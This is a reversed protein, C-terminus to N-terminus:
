SVLTIDKYFKAWKHLYRFCFESYKKMLVMHKFGQKMLTVNMKLVDELFGKCSLNVDCFRVLQSTYVGYSQKTPINGHLNPFNVVKFDFDDRKDYCGYTFKNRRISIALDLFTCRYQSLNTNNLVMEKPYIKDKHLLFCGKDNFAICDDQYRFTNSLYKATQIDGKHILMKLYKHEYFHLYINALYPACNTGM